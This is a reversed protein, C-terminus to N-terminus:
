IHLLDLGCCSSSTDSGLSWPPLLLTRATATGWPLASSKAGPQSPSGALVLVPAAQEQQSPSPLALARAAHFPLPEGRTLLSMLELLGQGTIASSRGEWGTSWHPASHLACAPSQQLHSCRSLQSGTVNGFCSSRNEQTKGQGQAPGIHLHCFCHCPLKSAATRAPEM